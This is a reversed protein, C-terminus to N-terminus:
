VPTKTSHGPILSDAHSGKLLLKGGEVTRYNEQIYNGNTKLALCNPPEDRRHLVQSSPNGIHLVLGEGRLSSNLIKLDRMVTSRGVKKTQRDTEKQSIMDRGRRGARENKTSSARNM